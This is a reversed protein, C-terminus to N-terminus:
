ENMELKSMDVYSKESFSGLDQVIGALCKWLKETWSRLQQKSEKSQFQGSLWHAVRCGLPM